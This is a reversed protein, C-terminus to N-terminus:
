EEVYWRSNEIRCGFEATDRFNWGPQGIYVNLFRIKRNIRVTINVMATAAQRISVHQLREAAVGQGGL